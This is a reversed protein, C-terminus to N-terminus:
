QKASKNARNNAKSNRNRKPATSQAGNETEDDPTSRKKGNTKNNQKSILENLESTSKYVFSKGNEEFKVNCGGSTLWCSFAKNNKIAQRGESLLKGFFPTVHNNVFVFDNAIKGTSNVVDKVHIVQRAKANLIAIKANYDFLKVIIISNQNQKPKTQYASEIDNQSINCKLVGFIATAIDFLNVGNRHPLGMISINNRLQKQKSLENEYHASAHQKEFKELRMKLEAVMSENSEVKASITSIKTDVADNLVKLDDKTCQKENMSKLFSLIDSKTPSKEVAPPMSSITKDSSIAPQIGNDILSSEIKDDSM